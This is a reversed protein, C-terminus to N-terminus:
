RDLYEIGKPTRFEEWGLEACSSLSEHEEDYTAERGYPSEDEGVDVTFVSFAEGDCCPAHNDEEEDGEDDTDDSAGVCAAFGKFLNGFFPISFIVVLGTM